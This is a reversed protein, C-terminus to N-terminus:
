DESIKPQGDFAHYYGVLKAVLEGIFTCFRLSFNHSTAQFHQNSKSQFDANNDSQTM